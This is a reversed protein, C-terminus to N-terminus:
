KMSKLQAILQLKRLLFVNEKSYDSEDIKNLMDLIKLNVNSYNRINKEYSIKSVSITNFYDEAWLVVGPLNNFFSPGTQIPIEKTFWVSYLLEKNEEQLTDISFDYEKIKAM